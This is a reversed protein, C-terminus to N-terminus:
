ATEIRLLGVELALPESINRALSERIQEIAELSASAQAYSWQAATKQLDRVNEPHELLGNDAGEACILLDGLWSYVEELVQERAARYDGEVRAALQSELRERIKPDLDQHAELFGESAIGAEIEARIEQLFSTLWALQQYVHAVGRYVPDILKLLFPELRKTGAPGSPM